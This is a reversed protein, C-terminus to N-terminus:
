LLELRHAIRVYMDYKLSDEKLRVGMCGALRSATSGMYSTHILVEYYVNVGMSKPCLDRLIAEKAIRRIVRMYRALCNM